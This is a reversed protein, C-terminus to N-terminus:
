ALYGFVASPSSSQHQPLFSPEQKAFNDINQAHQPMLKKVLGASLGAQTNAWVALQAQYPRVISGFEAFSFTQKLLEHARSIILIYTACCINQRPEQKNLVLPSEEQDQKIEPSKLSSNSKRKSTPRADGRWHSWSDRSNGSFRRCIHVTWRSLREEQPCEIADEVFARPDVEQHVVSVRQSQALERTPVLILAQINSKKTNVHHITPIVYAATKMMCKHNRCSMPSLRWPLHFSFPPPSRRSLHREIHGSDGEYNVRCLAALGVAPTMEGGTKPPSYNRRSLYRATLSPAGGDSIRCLAAFGVSPTMEGWYKAGLRSASQFFLPINKDYMQPKPQGEESHRSM